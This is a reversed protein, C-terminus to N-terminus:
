HQDQRQDSNGQVSKDIKRQLDFRDLKVDRRIETDAPAATHWVRFLQFGSFASVIWDPKSVKQTVARTRAKVKGTGRHLTTITIVTAGLRRCVISFWVLPALGPPPFSRFRANCRPGRRKERGFSSAFPKCTHRWSCRTASQSCRRVISCSVISSKLLTMSFSRSRLDASSKRRIQRAIVAPSSLCNAALLPGCKGECRLSKASWTSKTPQFRDRRRNSNRVALMAISSDPSNATSRIRKENDLWALFKTCVQVAFIAM